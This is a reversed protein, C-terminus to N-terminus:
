LSIPVEAMWRDSEPLAAMIESKRERRDAGLNVYAIVAKERVHEDAKKALEVLTREAEENGLEALAVIGRLAAWRIKVEEGQSTPEHPDVHEGTQVREPPLPAQAIDRLADLASHDTLESLTDAIM